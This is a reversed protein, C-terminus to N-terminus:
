VDFGLIGPHWIHFHHSRQCINLEEMGAHVEACNGLIHLILDMDTTKRAELARVDYHDTDNSSTGVPELIRNIASM